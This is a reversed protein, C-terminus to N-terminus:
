RRFLRGLGFLGGGKNPVPQATEAGTNPGQTVMSTDLVGSKGNPLEQDGLNAGAQPLGANVDPIPVITEPMGSPINPLASTAEVAATVADTMGQGTPAGGGMVGALGGVQGGMRGAEAQASVPEPYVEPNAGSVDSVAQDILTDATNQPPADQVSGLEDVKVPGQNTEVIGVESAEKILGGSVTIPEVSPIYAEPVSGPQNAEITPTGAMNPVGTSELGLSQGLIAEGTQQGPMANGVVSELGTSAGQVGAQDQGPVAGSGAESNNQQDM